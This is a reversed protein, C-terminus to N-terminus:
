KLRGYFTGETKETQYISPRKENAAKELSENGIFWHSDYKCFVVKGNIKRKYIGTKYAMEGNYGPEYKKLQWNKKKCNWSFFLTLTKPMVNEIRHFVKSNSHHFSFRRLVKRQCHTVDDYGGRVIFTLYSFPHSHLYNTKDDSKIYHLRIHLRGIKLLTYRELYGIISKYEM